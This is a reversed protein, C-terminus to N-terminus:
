KSRSWDSHLARGEILNHFETLVGNGDHIYAPEICHITATLPIDSNAYGENLVAITHEIRGQIDETIEAFEETYYVMISFTAMTTNDTEGLALLELYDSNRKRRKKRKEMKFLSDDALSPHLSEMDLEIWMYGTKCKELTFSRGDHTTLSGFINGTNSLFPIGQCKISYHKLNVIVWGNNSSLIDSFTM